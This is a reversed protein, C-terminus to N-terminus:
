PMLFRAKSRAWPAASLAAQFIARVFGVVAVPAESSNVQMVVPGIVPRNVSPSVSQCSVAKRVATADSESM